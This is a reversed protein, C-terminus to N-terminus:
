SFDQPSNLKLRVPVFECFQALMHIVLCSPKHDNFSTPVRTLSSHVFSRQQHFVQLRGPRRAVKHPLRRRADKGKFAVIRQIWCLNVLLLTCVLLALLVLTDFCMDCLRPAVSITVCLTLCQDVHDISQPTKMGFGAKFGMKLISYFSKTVRSKQILVKHWMCGLARPYNKMSKYIYIYIYIHTEVNM